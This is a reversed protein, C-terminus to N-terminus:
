GLIYLKSDWWRESESDTRGSREQENFYQEYYNINENLDLQSVEGSLASRLESIFDERTM